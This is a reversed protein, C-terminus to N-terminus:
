GEFILRAEDYYHGAEGWYFQEPSHIRTSTYILACSRCKSVVISGHETYIKERDSGGCLPCLVTVVEDASYEDKQTGGRVYDQSSAIIPM